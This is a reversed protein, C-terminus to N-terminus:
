NIIQSHLDFSFRISIDEYFLMPKFRGVASNLLVQWTPTHVSGQNLLHRQSCEQIRNGGTVRERWNRGAVHSLAHQERQGPCGEMREENLKRRSTRVDRCM